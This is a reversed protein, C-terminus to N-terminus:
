DGWARCADEIEFEDASVPERLYGLRHQEELLSVMQQQWLLQVAHRMVAAKTAHLAATLTELMRFMEDDVTLSITQM